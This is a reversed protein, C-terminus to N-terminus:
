IDWNGVEQNTPLTLLIFQVLCWNMVEYIRQDGENAVDEMENRYDEM